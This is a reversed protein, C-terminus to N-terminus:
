KRQFNVYNTFSDTTYWFSRPAFTILKNRYILNGDLEYCFPIFNRNQSYDIQSPNFHYPPPNTISVFEANPQKSNPYSSTQHSVSTSISVDNSTLQNNSNVDDNSMSIWPKTENEVTTSDTTTEERKYRYSDEPEVTIQDYDEKLAISISKAMEETTM